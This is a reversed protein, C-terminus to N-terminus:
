MADSVHVSLLMDRDIYGLVHDCSKFQLWPISVSQVRYWHHYIVPVIM